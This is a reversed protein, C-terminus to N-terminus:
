EPGFDFNELPNEKNQLNQVAKRCARVRTQVEENKQRLNEIFDESKGFMGLIGSTSSKSLDALSAVLDSVTKTINKDKYRKEIYKSLSQFEGSLHKLQDVSSKVAASAGSKRDAWISGTGANKMIEECLVEVEDIFGSLRTLLNESLEEKAGKHLFAVRYAIAPLRSSM